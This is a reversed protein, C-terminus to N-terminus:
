VGKAIIPRKEKYKVFRQLNAKAMNVIPLDDGLSKKNQGIRSKLQPLINRLKQLLKLNAFIDDSDDEGFVDFLKDLAEAVVRLDEDKAANEVLWVGVISLIQCSTADNLNKAALGALDGMINIINTRISSQPSDYLTLLQDLDSPALNLFSAASLDGCLKATSSRMASSAAEVLQLDVLNDEEEADEKQCCIKGLGTWTQYLNECGGLESLTLSDILNSLCLFSHIVLQKKLNVLSRGQKSTSLLEKVNAPLDNARLLITQVTQHSIVAEVFVPDASTEEPNSKLEEDDFDDEESDEELSDEGDEQCALNAIIELAAIQAKIITKIENVAKDDENQNSAGEVEMEGNEELPVSSSWDSVMKRTDLQLCDSVASVLLPFVPNNYVQSKMMNLLLVGTTVKIQHSTIESELLNTLTNYYPAMQEQAPINDDCATALLSLSVLVLSSPFRNSDLFQLVIELMNQRNFIDVATQNQEMVNWMLGLADVISRVRKEEVQSGIGRFKELLSALPTIVDQKVLEEVVDSGECSLNHLCGAAAQVVMIDQDLLLPGCIRVVKTQLAKERVEQKSTLSALSHCGCIRDEPNVSQLQEIINLLISDEGSKGFEKDMGNELEEIASDLGVPDDRAKYVKRSKRTKGM